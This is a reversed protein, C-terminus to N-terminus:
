KKSSEAKVWATTQQVKNLFKELMNKYDDHEQFNNLKYESGFAEIQKLIEFFEHVFYDDKGNSLYYKVQHLNEIKKEPTLEFESAYDYMLRHIDMEEGAYLNFMEYGDLATDIAEFITSTTLGQRQFIDMYEKLNKGFSSQMACRQHHFQSEIEVPNRLFYKEFYFHLFEHLVTEKEVSDYLQIVHEEFLPRDRKSEVHSLHQYPPWYTARVDEENICRLCDYQTMLTTDSELNGVTLKSNKTNKPDSVIFVHVGYKERLTTIMENIDLRAFAMIEETPIEKELWFLRYTEQAWLHPTFFLLCLIFYKLRQM